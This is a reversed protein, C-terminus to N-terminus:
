RNIKESLLRYMKYQIYECSYELNNKALKKNFMKSKSVIQFFLLCIFDEREAKVKKRFIYEVDPRLM